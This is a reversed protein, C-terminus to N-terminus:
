TSRVQTTRMSCGLCEKRLSLATLILTSLSFLSRDSIAVSHRDRSSNRVMEKIEITGSRDMDIKKYIRYFKEVAAESLALATINIVYTINANMYLVPAVFCQAAFTSYFERM